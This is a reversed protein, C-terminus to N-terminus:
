GKCVFNASSILRGCLGKERRKKRGQKTKTNILFGNFMLNIDNPEQTHKQQSHGEVKNYVSQLVATFQKLQM